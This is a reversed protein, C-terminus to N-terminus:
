QLALDASSSQQPSYEDIVQLIANIQQQVMKYREIREDEGNARLLLYVEASILTLHQRLEYKEDSTIM